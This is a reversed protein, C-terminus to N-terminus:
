SHLCFVYTEKCIIAHQWRPPLRPRPHYSVNILMLWKGCSKCTWPLLGYVAKAVLITIPHHNSFTSSTTHDIAFPERLLRKRFKRSCTTVVIQAQGKVLAVLLKKKHPSERPHGVRSDFFDNFVYYPSLDKHAVSM